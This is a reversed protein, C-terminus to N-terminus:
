NDKNMMQRLDDLPSESQNNELENSPKIQKFEPEDLCFELTFKIRFKGKQWGGSGISLIECNKGESFWKWNKKQWRNYRQHFESIGTGKIGKSDLFDVLTDALKDQLASQLAKKFSGFKCMESSNFAIVDDESYNPQSFKDEM